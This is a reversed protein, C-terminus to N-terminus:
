HLLYLTSFNEPCVVCVCFTLFCSGQLAGTTRRYIHYSGDGHYTMFYVGGASEAQRRSYMTRDFRTGVANTVRMISIGYAADFYPEYLVPRSWNPDPPTADIGWVSNDSPPVPPSTTIDPEEVLDPQPETTVPAPDSDPLEVFDPEPETAVPTDVLPVQSAAIYRLWAGLPEFSFNTNLLDRAAISPQSIWANASGMLMLVMCAACLVTSRATRLAAANHHPKIAM